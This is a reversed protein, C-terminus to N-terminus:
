LCADCKWSKLKNVLQKGKSAQNTCEIHFWKKCKDCQIWLEGEQFLIGCVGCENDENDSDDGDDDDDEDDDYLLEEEDEDSEEDDSFNKMDALIKKVPKRGTKRLPVVSNTTIKRKKTNEKVTNEKVTKKKEKALRKAEKAIELNRKEEEKFKLIELAKQCTMHKPLELKKRAQKKNRQVSPYVLISNIIPNISESLDSNSFNEMEIAQRISQWETYLGKWAHYLSDGPVEYGELMRNMFVHKRTGVITEISQLAQLVPHTSGCPTSTKLPSKEITSKSGGPITNRAAVLTNTVEFVESNHSDGVNSQEGVKSGLKISLGDISSDVNTELVNAINGNEDPQKEQPEESHNDAANEPVTVSETSFDIDNPADVYIESPHFLGHDVALRNTPWIGTARFSATVIVARCTIEFAKMFITPFTRKTISAGPHEVTFKAVEKSFNSKFSGFYGRDTPQLAHSTHPPFRFLHIQNEHCFLTTHYDIHSSHGDILLVVPRVPPIRKVFHNTLWGYFQATEMWGNKTFGLYVNKAFGIGYDPNFNVGPFLISPPVVTGNACICQLTTISTKNSSTIQFNRRVTRDVCVKMSSATQLPFGSEDCNYIQDASTTGHEACFAEFEDFWAYVSAQTCSMARVQELKESRAMKIDPHRRLFAYFWTKGPRNEHFEKVRINSKDLYLKVAEKIQSRSRPFGCRSMKLVWEAFSFYFSLM